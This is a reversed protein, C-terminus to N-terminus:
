VDSHSNRNRLAADGEARPEVPPATEPGVALHRDTRRVLERMLEPVPSEAVEAYLFRLHKSTVRTWHFGDVM